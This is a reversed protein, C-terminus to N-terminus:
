VGAPKHTITARTLQGAFEVLAAGQADQLLSVSRHRLSDLRLM